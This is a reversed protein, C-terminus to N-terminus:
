MYTAIDAVSTAGVLLSLDEGTVVTTPTPATFGARDILSGTVTIEQLASSSDAAVQPTTPGAAALQALRIPAQQSDSGVTSSQALASAAPQNPSEILLAAGSQDTHVSLGTGVLLKSVAQQATLLGSFGKTKLGTLQRPEFVLRAGVQTSRSQLAAALDGAPITLQRPADSMAHAAVSLTCALAVISAPAFIKRTM